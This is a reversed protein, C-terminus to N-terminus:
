FEENFDFFNKFTEASCILGNTKCTTLYDRFINKQKKINIRIHSFNDHEKLM